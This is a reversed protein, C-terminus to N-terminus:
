KTEKDFGQKNIQKQETEMQKNTEKIHSEEEKLM